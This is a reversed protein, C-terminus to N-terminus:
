KKEENNLKVAKCGSHEILDGDKINETLRCLVFEGCKCKIQVLLLGKM